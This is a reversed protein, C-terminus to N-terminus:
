EGSISLKNDELKIEIKNTELYFLRKYEKLITLLNDITTTFPPMNPYVYNDIEITVLKGKKELWSINGSFEDDQPNELFEIYSKFGIGDNLFIALTNMSKDNYEIQKYMYKEIKQWISYRKIM